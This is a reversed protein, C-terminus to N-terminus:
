AFALERWRICRAQRGTETPALDIPGANCAPLALTCRPAFCCGPPRAFPSPVQGPIALLREAEGEPASALLAATYPHRPSAFVADVPGTEVVEGAYMVVISDAIEAVVALNHTVFIMGMGAVSSGATKTKLGALLDLIQAQVTVDLATTPEDAILLRPANAIAAAIMVRQRQGGSLEHPYAGARREPDPVGVQRLLSVVRGAVDPRAATRHSVISEAVQSGITHLPNLSSSPDQFVMSIQDGRL